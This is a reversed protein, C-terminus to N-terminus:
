RVLRHIWMWQEPYERIWTEILCMIQQMTGQVDIKGRQDRPCDLPGVLEFRHRQDPLRVTRAGYVPWDQMRALRALVPNVVCTQGFFTVNIGDAYHQDVLMGVLWGKQLLNLIERPASPSAEVLRAAFLSRIRVLEKTMKSSPQRKYVLAIDRGGVRAAMAPIEWNGLHAAFM